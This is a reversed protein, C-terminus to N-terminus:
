RVTRIAYSSANQQWPVQAQRYESELNRNGARYLSDLVAWADPNNRAANLRSLNNTIPAPLYPAPNEAGNQLSYVNTGVAGNRNFDGIGIKGQLM